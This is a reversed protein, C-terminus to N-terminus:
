FLHISPPLLSLSPGQNHSDKTPVPVRWARTFAHYGVHRFHDTLNFPLTRPTQATTRIQPRLTFAADFSDCASHSCCCLPLYSSFHLDGNVHLVHASHCYHLHRSSSCQFAHRAKWLQTAPTPAPLTSLHICSDLLFSLPPLPVTYPLGYATQPCFKLIQQRCASEYADYMQMM